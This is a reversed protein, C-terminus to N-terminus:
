PGKEARLPEGRIAPLIETGWAPLAKLRGIELSPREGRDNRFAELPVELFKAQGSPGVVALNSGGPFEIPRGGQLLVHHPEGAAGSRYSLEASYPGIVGRLVTEGESSWATLVM